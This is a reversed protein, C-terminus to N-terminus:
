AKYYDYVADILEDAVMELDLPDPEEDDSARDAYLSWYHEAAAVLRQLDAPTDGGAPTDRVLALIRDPLAKPHGGKRMRTRYSDLLTRLTETRENKM